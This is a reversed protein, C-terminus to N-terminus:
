RRLLRRVFVGLAILSSGVMLITAPDPQAGADHTVVSRYLIRPSFRGLDINHLPSTASGGSALSMRPQSSDIIGANVSGACVGMALALGAALGSKRITRGIRGM